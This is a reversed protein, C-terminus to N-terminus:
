RASSPTAVRPLDDRQVFSVPNVGDVGIGDAAAKTLDFTAGNAFPGRDIVPVVVSRGGRRIEVQTGCPLTRHAVGVTDKQLTVGCATTRGYFGPGYWTAKARGLVAIRVSPVDATSRSSATDGSRAPVPVLVVRLEHVRTSRTRWVAAFRGTSRVRATTAQQWRGSPTRREVRVRRDALSKVFSGTVRLPSGTGASPVASWTGAGALQASARTPVAPVPATAPAAPTGAAPTTSADLGGTPADAALATTPLVLLTLLGALATRRVSFPAIM